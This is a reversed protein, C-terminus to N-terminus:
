KDILVEVFVPASTGILKGFGDDGFYRFEYQGPAKPAYKAKWHLKGKKRASSTVHYLRFM